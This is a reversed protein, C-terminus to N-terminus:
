SNNIFVLSKWGQGLLLGRSGVTQEQNNQKKRGCTNEFGVFTEFNPLAFKWCCSELRVSPVLLTLGLTRWQVEKGAVREAVQAVGAGVADAVVSGAPLTPCLPRHIFDVHLTILCIRQAFLAGPKLPLRIMASTAMKSIGFHALCQYLVTYGELIALSCHSCDSYKFPFQQNQVPFM